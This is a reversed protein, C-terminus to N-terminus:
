MQAVLERIRLRAQHLGFRSEDERIGLLRAIREHDYSEVDHLLFILKETAPLEIVAQELQVRKMNGRLPKVESAAPRLTLGRLPSVERVEALFAQDIQEARPAEGSSFARLFTNAALQEAAPESGTMWFALSYVRHRHENYIKSFRAARKKAAPVLIGTQSIAGSFSGSMPGVEKGGQKLIKKKSEGKCV